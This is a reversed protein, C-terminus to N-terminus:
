PSRRCKQSSGAQGSGTRFSGFHIMLNAFLRPKILLKFIHEYILSFGTKSATRKLHVHTAHSSSRSCLMPIHCPYLQFSSDVRQVACSRPPPRAIQELTETFFHLYTKSVFSAMVYSCTWFCVRQPYVQQFLYIARPFCTRPGDDMSVQSPTCLKSIYSRATM